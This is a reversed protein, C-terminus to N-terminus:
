VRALHEPVVWSERTVTRPPSAAPAISTIQPAQGAPGLRGLVVHARRPEARLVSPERRLTHPTLTRPWGHEFDFDPPLFIRGSPSVYVQESWPAPRDPGAPRRPPLMAEVPEAVSTHGVQTTTSRPTRIGHDAPIELMTTHHRCRTPM